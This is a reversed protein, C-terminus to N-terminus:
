GDPACLPPGGCGIPRVLADIPQFPDGSWDLRQWWRFGVKDALRRLALNDPHILCLM